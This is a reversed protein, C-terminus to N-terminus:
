PTDPNVIIPLYIWNSMPDPGPTPVPTPTPMPASGVTFWAATPIGWNGDADKGEVFITHKGPSLHSVDVSFMVDSKPKGINRNVTVPNAGEIWSPKDFSYRYAVINQSPIGGEYSSHLTDDIHVNVIMPQAPNVPNAPISNFTVEPGYSDMYPRRALKIGRLLTQQNDPWIESEFRSCSEHFTVGMEVCFAPVGFEGYVFDDTSGLTAYLRTSKQPKYNNYYALKYSVTKLQNHNPANDYTYGWPYLILESYSHLDMFMGTTDAPAPDNEGPGRQDEFITSLYATIAQTEPESNGSLGPYTLDCQNSGSGWAFPYNRNLDVGTQNYNGYQGPCHNTNYNKRQMRNSGGEDILRGDPNSVIVMHVRNYDLMWTIDPNQGYNELLFEALRLNVEPPAWERAHINSMYFTDSKPTEPNNKNTILLVEIDYGATGGSNIKQWSDGIDIIEVLDPYLSALEATRAYMEDVTRFCPYGPMGSTQNPLKERVTNIERTYPIDVTWSFGDRSLADRDNLSSFIKVTQTDHHVEVVDYRDALIQLRDRNEFPVILVQIEPLPQNATVTQSGVLMGFILVIAICLYLFRLKKPSM